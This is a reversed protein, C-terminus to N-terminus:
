GKTSQKAPLEDGPVEPTKAVGIIELRRTVPTRGRPGEKKGRKEPICGRFSVSVMGRSGLTRPREGRGVSTTGVGSDSSEM